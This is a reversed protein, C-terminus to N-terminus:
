NMVEFPKETGNDKKEATAVCRRCVPHLATIYDPRTRARDWKIAGLEVVLRGCLYCPLPNKATM